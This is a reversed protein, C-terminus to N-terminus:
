SSSVVKKQCMANLAIMKTIFYVNSVNNSNNYNYIESGGFTTEKKDILINENRENDEIENKQTHKCISFIFKRNTHCQFPIFQFIITFQSLFLPM